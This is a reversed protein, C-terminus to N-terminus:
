LNLKTKVGCVIASWNSMKPHQGVRFNRRWHLPSAAPGMTSRGRGKIGRSLAISMVDEHPPALFLRSPDPHELTDEEAAALEEAAKVDRLPPEFRSTDEALCELVAASLPRALELCAAPM